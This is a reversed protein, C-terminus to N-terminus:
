NNEKTEFYGLEYLDKELISLRGKLEKNQWELETVRKHLKEQFRTQYYNVMCNCFTVLIFGVSLIILGIATGM